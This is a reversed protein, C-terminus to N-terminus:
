ISLSFARPDRRRDQLIIWEAFMEKHHLNRQTTSLLIAHHEILTRAKHFDSFLSVDPNMTLCDADFSELHAYINPGRSDTM